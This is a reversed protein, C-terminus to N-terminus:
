LKCVHYPHTSDIFGPPQQMFLEEGLTGHLFANNVDLQRIKWGYSLAVSLILRITTQKIVPSFTEQFNLGPRQHFGKAVFHAKYCAITSDLNRKIHFVWKCIIINQSDNTPVLVWTENKLLANIEDSIAVRWWPDKLAQSPCTPEIPEPLPHKTTTHHLQKPKFINHQSRTVMPHTRILQQSFSQSPKPPLPVLPLLCPLQLPSVIDSENDTSATSTSTITASHSGSAIFSNTPHSSSNHNNVDCSISSYSPFLTALSSSPSSWTHVLSSPTTSLPQCKSHFPFEREIFQVHRSIFVKKSAM